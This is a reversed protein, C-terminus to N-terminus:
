TLSEQERSNEVYSRPVAGPMTGEYLTVLRREMPVMRYRFCCRYSLLVQQAEGFIAIQELHMPFLMHRSGLRLHIHQQADPLRFEIAGDPSVNTIRVIDQPNLQDTIIMQPHANNFLTPLIRRITPRQPDSDDAEIGNRVRLEWQQSYPATGVPVPRDEWTEILQGPDEINPLPQNAAQEAMMYFGKGVPNAQWPIDGSDWECIGGFANEYTLPMMRFPKPETPRLDDEHHQLWNRDGYVQLRRHFQAGVSIDVDVSTTAVGNPAHVQGVFVFDVGRHIFPIEGDFVGFPTEVPTMQVPWPQEPTAVLEGAALRYTPKSIVAGLLGDESVVTNIFGASYPTNNILEM